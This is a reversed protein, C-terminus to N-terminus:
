TMSLNEKKDVTLKCSIVQLNGEILNHFGWIKFFNDQLVLWEILIVWLTFHQLKRIIVYLHSCDGPLAASNLWTKRFISPLKRTKIFYM